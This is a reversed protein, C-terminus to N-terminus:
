GAGHGAPPFLCRRQGDRLDTAQERHREGGLRAVAEAVRLPHADGIPPRSQSAIGDLLAGPIALARARLRDIEDAHEAFALPVLDDLDAPDLDAAPMSLVLYDGAFIGARLCLEGAGRPRAAGALLVLAAVTAAALLWSRENVSATDARLAAPVPSVALLHGDVGAMAVTVPTEYGSRRKDLEGRSAELAHLLLLRLHATAAAPAAAGGAASLEGELNTM